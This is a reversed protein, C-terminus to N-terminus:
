GIFHKNQIMRIKFLISPVVSTKSFILIAKCDIFLLIKLDISVTNIIATPIVARTPIRVAMSDMFVEIVFSNVTKPAFVNEIV